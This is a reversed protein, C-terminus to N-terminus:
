EPAHKHPNLKIADEFSFLIAASIAMCVSTGFGESICSQIDEM